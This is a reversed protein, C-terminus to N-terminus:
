FGAVSVASHEVVTPAAFYKGVLGRWAQFGDSNRFTVTHHELTDWEVVLRYAAEREIIKEVHMARCGEAARFIQVAERAAAEFAAEQGPTVQLDAYETVAVM